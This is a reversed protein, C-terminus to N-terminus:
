PDVSHASQRVIVSPVLGDRSTGTLVASDPCMPQLLTAPSAAKQQLTRAVLLRYANTLSIQGREVAAALDPAGALLRDAQVVHGRSTRAQQAMEQQTAGRASMERVATM